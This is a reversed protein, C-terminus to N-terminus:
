KGETLARQMAEVSPPGLTFSQLGTRDEINVIRTSEGGEPDVWQFPWGNTLERDGSEARLALFHIEYAGSEQCFLRLSGDPKFYGLTHERFNGREGTQVLQVGLLMGDRHVAQAPVRLEVEPGRRLTLEVLRSTPDVQALRWGEANVVLRELPHPSVAWVEGRYGSFTNEPDREQWAEIDNIKEGNEGRARIQCFYIKGRLDLPDLRPDPLASAGIVIGRIRVLESETTASWSCTVVIEASGPPVQTFEFRGERPDIETWTSPRQAGPMSYSIALADLPVGPDVLVRGSLTGGAELTVQLNKVGPLTEVDQDLYGHAKVSLWLEASDAKGYIVFSGDAACPTENEWTALWDGDEPDDSWQVWRMQCLRALAVPNGDADSVRGSALVPATRAFIDGVENVGLRLTPLETEALLAPADLSAPLFFEAAQPTSWLERRLLAVRFRGEADLPVSRHSSLGMENKDAPFRLEVSCSRLPQGKADLLRGSLIPYNQTEELVLRATAGALVPGAGKVKSAEPAGPFITSAELQLAIGVRPFVARGDRARTATSDFGPLGPIGMDDDDATVLRATRLFVLQEGGLLTGDPKRLEIEVRGCPPLVLRVPERPFHGPELPASVPTALPLALAVSLEERPGPSFADLLLQAHKLVGIGDAGTTTRLFDMTYEDGGFRLSVPVGASPAGAEDVVLVQLSETERLELRLIEADAPLFKEPDWERMSFQNQIEAAVLGVSGPRPIRVRGDTGTRYHAGHKELLDPVTIGELFIMMWEAQQSDDPAIVSVTAGAAPRQDSAYVAEIVIWDGADTSNSTQDPHTVEPAHTRGIGTEQGDADPLILTGNSGLEPIQLRSPDEQQRDSGAPERDQFVLFLALAVILLLAAPLLLRRM